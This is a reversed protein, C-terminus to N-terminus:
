ELAREDGRTVRKKPGHACTFNKYIHGLSTVIAEKALIGCVNQQFACM